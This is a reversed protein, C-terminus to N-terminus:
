NKLIPTMTDQSNTEELRWTRVLSDPCKTTSHHYVWYWGRMLRTGVQYMKNVLGTCLEWRVGFPSTTTGLPYLKNTYIYIYINWYLENSYIVAWMPSLLSPDRYPCTLMDIILCQKLAIAAQISLAKPLKLAWTGPGLGQARARPGSLLLKSQSCKQWIPLM